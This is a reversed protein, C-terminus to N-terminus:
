IGFCVQKSIENGVGFGGNKMTVKMVSTSSTVSSPQMIPVILVTKMRPLVVLTFSTINARVSITNTYAKRRFQGPM